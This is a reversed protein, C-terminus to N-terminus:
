PGIPWRLDEWCAGDSSDCLVGVGLNLNMGGVSSGEFAVCLCWLDHIVDDFGLTHSHCKQPGEYFLDFSRSMPTSEKFRAQSPSSNPICALPRMGFAGRLMMAHM